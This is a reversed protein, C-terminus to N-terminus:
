AVGEKVSAGRYKERYHPLRNYIFSELCGTAKAIDNTDRGTEWLWVARRWEIETLYHNYRSFFANM